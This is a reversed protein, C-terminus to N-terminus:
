VSESEQLPASFTGDGNDTYGPGVGDPAIVYGFAIMDEESKFIAVNTVVSDKAIM